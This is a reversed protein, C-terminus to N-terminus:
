VKKGGKLEEQLAALKDWDGKAALKAQQPWTTPDHMKYRSGAEELITKLGKAKAKTLDTFSAIGKASLIEAIKPGIGEIKTLDDATNEVKKAPAKKAPTTKTETEAPTELSIAELILISNYVGFPTPVYGDAEWDNEWAYNDILYRFEYQRDSELELTVTYEAKSLKMVRGQEWQWGNFDGLLRVETADPAAELPLSFTVKCLPKNKLYQKKLM